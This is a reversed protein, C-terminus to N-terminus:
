KILQGWKGFYLLLFLFIIKPSLWEETEEEKAEVDGVEISTENHKLKIYKGNKISEIMEQLKFILIYLIGTEGVAALVSSDIVGRPPMFFSTIFLGISFLLIIWDSLVKNKASNYIFDKFKGM